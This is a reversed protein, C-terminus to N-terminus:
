QGTLEVLRDGRNVTDGAAVHLASVTGAFPALLENEMKMAELVLLRSGAEVTDGVAVAVSSIVGPIPAAILGSQERHGRTLGLKEITIDLSSRLNVVYNRQRLRVVIGDKGPQLTLYHSRGDIILSYAYPSLRVLDM